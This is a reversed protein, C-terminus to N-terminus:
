VAIPIDPLNKPLVRFLSEWLDTVRQLRAPIERERIKM